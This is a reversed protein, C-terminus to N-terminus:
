VAAWSFIGQRTILDCARVVSVTNQHFQNMLVSDLGASALMPAYVGELLHKKEKPGNGSTLNSLGVVTKVPFGLVEPLMRIVTLLEMAQRPGDEWMLPVLVPDIMLRDPDIGKENLADLLQVALLLREDASGPVMGNPQLLFGIIDCDFRTALPLITELKAPELSFGNVIPRKRCAQLGAAMASPNSTDLSLPLDCVDQVAEVLFVMKKEGDRTLPGPNIDLIHAGAAACKIALDQIPLPDMEDLAKAILPDTVQINDSIMQRSFGVM